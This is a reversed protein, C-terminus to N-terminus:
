DGAQRGLQDMRQRVAEYRGDRRLRRLDADHRLHEFDRYGLEFAVRLSEVAADLDGTLSFSCALNYRFLPDRPDHAVLRKDLELGRRYRRMRTYTEALAALVEMNDPDRELVRELVSTEFAWGAHELRRGLAGAPAQGRAPTEPTSTMLRVQCPTWLREAPGVTVRWNRM